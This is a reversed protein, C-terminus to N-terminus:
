RCIWTCLSPDICVVTMGISRLTTHEHCLLQSPYEPKIKRKQAIQAQPLIRIAFVDSIIGCLQFSSVESSAQFKLEHDLSTRNTEEDLVLSDRLNDEQVAKISNTILRAQHRLMATELKSELDAETFAQNALLDLSALDNRQSQPTFPLSNVYLDYIDHYEGERLLVAPNWNSTSLNQIQICTSVWEKSVVNDAEAPDYYFTDVFAAAVDPTGMGNLDDVMEKVTSTKHRPYSLPALLQFATTM